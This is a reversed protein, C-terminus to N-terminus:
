EEVDALASRINKRVEVPLKGDRNLEDFTVLVSQVPIVGETVVGKKSCVVYKSNYPHKALRAQLWSVELKCPLGGAGVQVGAIRAVWFPDQSQSTRTAVYTGVEYEAEQEDLDSESHSDEEESNQQGQKMNREAKREVCDEPWAYPLLRPEPGYIEDRLSLLDAVKDSDNIRTELANIRKTVEDKVSIGLAKTETAPVASLDPPHRLFGQNRNSKQNDGRLPAFNDTVKGKVSCTTLFWESSPDLSSGNELRRAFVFYRYQTFALKETPLLCSGKKLAERMNAVNSLHTVTPRPTYATRILCHLDDLTVANVPRLARATCSFIQDIDEHTHGKPLFSVQVEEFVGLSVLMEVYGFFIKNKNERSCNDLQILLTSPLKGKAKKRQLWRHLVEVVHNAGTEMDEALTFLHLERVHGPVHEALGVLGMKMSYGTVEAKTKMAFHPLSFAEQNAGDIIISCFDSPFQAAKAQNQRYAGREKKIFDYHNRQADRFPQAAVVDVGCGEISGKLNECTDCLAFRHVARVKINPCSSGWVRLFYGFSIVTANSAITWKAWDEKLVDYVQTVTRYTLHIEDKDPMRDGQTEALQRLFAVIIEAKPSVTLRPMAKVVASSRSKPTQKIGCVTDNSFNFATNLFRPCVEVGDFVFKRSDRQFLSIAFAKRNERSMQLVEMRKTLLYELDDIVRFCKKKCCAESRAADPGRAALSVVKAKKREHIPLVPRDPTAARKQRMYVRRRPASLQAAETPGASSEKSRRKRVGTDPFRPSETEAGDSSDSNDSDDSLRARRSTRPM